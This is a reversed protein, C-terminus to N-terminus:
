SRNQKGLSPDILAGSLADRNSQWQKGKEIMEDSQFAAIEDVDRPVVRVFNDANFADLTVDAQAARCSCVQNRSVFDALDALYFGVNNAPLKQTHEEGSASWNRLGASGQDRKNAIFDILEDSSQPNNQLISVILKKEIPTLADSNSPDFSALTLGSEQVEQAFVSFEAQEEETLLDDTNIGPTQIVDLYREVAEPDAFRLPDTDSITQISNFGDIELGRGYRYSGILTYGEEDSVPFVPSYFTEKFKQARKTFSSLRYQGRGGTAASYIEGFREEELVYLEPSLDPNIERLRKSEALLYNNLETFLLDTFIGVLADKAANLNQTVTAIESSTLTAESGGGFVNVTFSTVSTTETPFTQGRFDFSQPFATTFVTSRSEWVKRFSNNPDALFTLGLDQSSDLEERFQTRIEEKINDPIGDFSIDGYEFSTIRRDAKADHKAFTLTQIRSTPLVQEGSGTIVRIGNVVDITGLEAEPLTGDAAQRTPELVYGRIKGRSPLRNVATGKLNKDKTLALESMGQYKPNPHSASFYQYFGPVQGNTFVAKKDSLLDLLGATSDADPFDPNNLTYIDVITKILNRLLEIDQQTQKDFSIKKQEDTREGELERIAKNLEEIRADIQRLQQKLDSKEDDQADQLAKQKVPDTEKIKTRGLEDLRANIRVKDANAAEISNTRQEVAQELITVTKQGDTFKNYKDSLAAFDDFSSITGSTPGSLNSEKTPDPNGDQNQAAGKPDLNLYQANDLDIVYPGEDLNGGEAISILNYQKAIEIVNQLVQPNAINDLDSGALFFLPNVANPNLAMVVNPFGSFRPNGEDDLVELPREPLTTRDLKIADIGDERPSGPAYFKTRRGVLTLSTTCRSGFAFSHSINTIYFYSDIYRIYVPYGPRIEPRLPISLNAKNIGANIVDLRNVATFFMAKSNSLYATEFSHPRWGFQAVLKYDIYQGKVGWENELGTGKLNKFQSGKLTVYTAEPESQSFSISIIDENEIRYVRSKRTNLNYLPPKFVFDGDVDQYFEFGTINAVNQAVELKTEYTSEFLNPQGWQSIDHVYGQMALINLDFKNKDEGPRSTEAQLIDPGRTFIEGTVLDKVQRVLGLKEASSTVDKADSTKKPGTKSSFVKNLTDKADSRSLRALYAAQATSFLEGSAGHMRLNIMRTSFRQQWYRINVSFLSEDTASSKSTQNSKSGMAFGVGGAAGATDHFLTYIIAYPSKGNLNNGVMSMKLKSNQPRAGFYSANTSMNHYQWFHLMSNCQVTATQFGGDYSVDVNTVVGHFVHYYPYTPLDRIDFGGTTEPEVDAFQGKIAFYGRKYVHVELGPRILFRGDSVLVDKSHLPVSLSISASAGGPDVGAEVSVSTIYEQFDVRGGCKPCGPLATDGNLYVLCDPAHQVLKRNFKWTGAYPRDLLGM